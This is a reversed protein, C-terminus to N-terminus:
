KKVKRRASLWEKKIRDLYFRKKIRESYKIFKERTMGLEIMCYRKWAPNETIDIYVEELTDEGEGLGLVREYTNYMSFFPEAVVKLPKGAMHRALAGLTPNSVPVKLWFMTLVNGTLVPYVWLDTIERIWPSVQRATQSTYYIHVFAKRSALLIRRVIDMKVKSGKGITISSVWRWLEDGALLMESAKMIEEETAKMPIIRKLGELTTIKTFPIGYLTINSYIKREKFVYNNWCLYALALSKGSGLEGIIGVLM